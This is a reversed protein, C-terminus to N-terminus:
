CEEEPGAADGELAYHAMERLDVAAANRAKFIHKLWWRLRKIEGDRPDNDAV